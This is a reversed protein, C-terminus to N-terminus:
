GRRRVARTLLLGLGFLALTGPAPVETPPTPSDANGALAYVKVYDNGQTWANQSIDSNFASVLWFSSTTDGANISATGGPENGVNAYDGVYSWGNTLLDAYSQGTLSASPDGAGTYALVSMDSDTYYWGVSLDTLSVADAGFDFLIADIYGGNDTAHNPSTGNEGRNTVGLGGSYLELQASQLSSGSGSNSWASATIASGDTGQFTKTNGYGTTSCGGSVCNGGTFTWSVAAQAQFGSLCLVVGALPAFVRSVVM